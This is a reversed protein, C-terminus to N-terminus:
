MGLTDPLAGVGRFPLKPRNIQEEDEGHYGPAEVEGSQGGIFRRAGARQGIGACGAPM